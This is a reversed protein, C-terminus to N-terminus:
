EGIEKIRKLEEQIFERMIDLVEEETLSPNYTYCRWFWDDVCSYHYDEDVYSFLGPHKVNAWDAFIDPDELIDYESDDLLQLFVPSDSEKYDMYWWFCPPPVRFIAIQGFDDKPYNDAYYCTGNKTLFRRPTLEIIDEPDYDEYDFFITGYDLFENNEGYVGYKVCLGQKYTKDAWSFLQKDKDTM